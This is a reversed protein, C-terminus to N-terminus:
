MAAGGLPREVVHGHRGGQEFLDDVREVAGPAHPSPPEDDLLREALIQLGSPREVARERADKRFLLDVPDVVEEAFLRDLVDNVEAERVRQELRDPVGVMDLADLDGHGLPEADLAAAPEVVRGPADAVDQLVM